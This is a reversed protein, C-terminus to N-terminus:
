WEWSVEVLRPQVRYKGIGPCIEVTSLPSVAPVWRARRRDHLGVFNQVLFLFCVFFLVVFFLFGFLCILVLFFSNISIYLYIYIHSLLSPSKLVLLLRLTSGLGACHDLGKTAM